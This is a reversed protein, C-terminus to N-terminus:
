YMGTPKKGGKKDKRIANQAKISIDVSKLCSDIKGALAQLSAMDDKSLTKLSSLYLFQKLAIRALLLRTKTTAPLEEPNDIDALECYENLWEKHVADASEEFEEMSPKKPRGGGPNGKAFKGQEDHYENGNM